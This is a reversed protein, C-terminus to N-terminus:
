LKIKDPNKIYSAIVEKNNWNTSEESGMINELLIDKVNKQTESLSELKFKSLFQQELEQNLKTALILNEKVLNIAESSITRFASKQNSKLTAM